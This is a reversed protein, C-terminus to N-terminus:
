RQTARMVQTLAVACDLCFGERQYKARAWSRGTLSCRLRACWHVDNSPPEIIWGAAKLMAMDAETAEGMSETMTRTKPYVVLSDKGMQDFQCKVRTVSMADAIDGVNVAPGEWSDRGRYHYPKLGARKMDAVFRIHDPTSYQEPKVEKGESNDKKM